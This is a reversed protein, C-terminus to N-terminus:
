PMLVLSILTDGTKLNFNRRVITNYLARRYLLATIGSDHRCLTVLTDDDYKSIMEGDSHRISFWFTETFNKNDTRLM